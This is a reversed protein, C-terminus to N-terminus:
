TNINHINELMKDIIESESSATQGHGTTRNSAAPMSIVLPQGDTFHRSIIEEVCLLIGSQEKTLYASYSASLALIFTSICLMKETNKM